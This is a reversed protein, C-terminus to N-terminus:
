LARSGLSSLIKLLLTIYSTLSWHCTFSDPACQESSRAGRHDGPLLSSDWAGLGDCPRVLFRDWWDPLLIQM